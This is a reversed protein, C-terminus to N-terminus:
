RHRKSNKWNRLERTAREPPPPNAGLAHDNTHHERAKKIGEPGLVAKAEQLMEPTIAPDKHLEGRHYNRHARRSALTSTSVGNEEQPVLSLLYALEQAATTVPM